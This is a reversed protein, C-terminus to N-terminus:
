AERLGRYSVVAWAMLIVCLAADLGIALPTGVAQALAGLELSGFPGVGIALTLVGMARGRMEDSSNRLIITTQYVAFGSRGLGGLFLLASAVALTPSAAFGLLAVAGFLSSAWFYLGHRRQGVLTAIATTGILSGLGDAAGLIGLGLSDTRLVDVAMVPLLQQYPFFLLNMWVTIVLVGVVAQDKLVYGFGAKLSQLVGQTRVVIAAQASAPLRVILLGNLLYIGALLAVASGPNLVQILAGAVLPGVARSINQGTADLAVANALRDRGVLDLTLARRSPWDFSQFAGMALEALALQWFALRDLLLLVAVAAMTAVNALQLLWVLRKRDYRDGLVGGILGFAFLPLSRYFGVLAVLFPSHTLELAIWGLAIQEMWRAVNWAVNASWLEAYGPLGFAHLQYREVFSRRGALRLEAM